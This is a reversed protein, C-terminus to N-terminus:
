ASPVLGESRFWEITRAITTELPTYTVGLDREAKSGDMRHGHLLTSVLAPCVGLGPRLAHAIASLPRGIARVAGESVWRPDVDVDAAAGALDVLETIRASAGSLIYREGARGQSEAALHGATCDEIDVISVWADVLLPRRMTLARILVQASGTSRGPGQVSAPNVSVLPIGAADATEFAALEGLHKSRAYPSLYEGNHRIEETGIIGPAEGIAAISSTHIIRGTGAEAATAVITRVADINVAELYRPDKTCTENVAAVHFLTETGWLADRLGEGTVIDAHVPEAGIQRVTRAADESRVIARVSRGQKVLRTTLHRGVVGSAGTVAVTRGGDQDPPM